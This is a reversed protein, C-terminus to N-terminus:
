VEQLSRYVYWFSFKINCLLAHGDGGLQVYDTEKEGGRDSCMLSALTTRLTHM